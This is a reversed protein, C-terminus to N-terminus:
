SVREIIFQVIADKMIESLAIATVLMYLFLPQIQLGQLM